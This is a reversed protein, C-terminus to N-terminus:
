LASCRRLADLCAQAPLGSCTWVSVQDTDVQRLSVASASFHLRCQVASTFGLWGSLGQWCQRRLSFWTSAEDDEDEDEDEDDDEEPEEASAEGTFWLYANPVVDTRLIERHLAANHTLKLQVGQWGRSAIM